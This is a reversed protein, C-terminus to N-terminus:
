FSSNYFYSLIPSILPIITSELVPSGIFPTLILTTEFVEKYLIDGKFITLWNFFILMLDTGKILRIRKILCWRFLYKYFSFVYDVRLILM